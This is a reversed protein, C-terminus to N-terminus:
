HFGGEKFTVEVSLLSEGRLIELTATDAPEKRGILYTLDFTTDVPQGDFARIIDGKELGAEAAASEKSIGIIKIGNEAPQVMVGLYVREDELDEYGVAWLFDGAPLPVEPQSVGRMLRHKPRKPAELPVPLIIRYSAPIRRFVRRPIGFGHEIHQSGAFVVLQRGKGAESILYEHIRAAMSEDWLVQVKYFQEFDNAGPHKEFIAEIQSRHYPDQVDLEPLSVEPADGDAANEGKVKAMWTDPARLALLPIRHDRIYTLIDRYYAFDNSWDAVWRRVLDKEGLEGSSWQDAIDQSSQKLMEVAVTIRGPNRQALAKLIALQVRHADVNDHSEGVYVIRADAIMEIMEEKTVTVGTPLHVINGKELSGIAKYPSRWNAQPAACSM